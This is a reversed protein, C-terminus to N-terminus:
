QFIPLQAIANAVSANAKQLTELRIFSDSTTALSPYGIDSIQSMRGLGMNTGWALICAILTRHDVKRGAYRHLVHTFEAMFQCHRNVFHFVAQIDVQALSEFFSDNMGENVRSYLLRWRGRQKIEIHENEGSVIRQNVHALRTELLSSLDSLHKEATQTLIPLGAKTILADKEQWQDDSLLDDEFSRFRVSNQCFIDGSQLDNRLRRYVLFEYRDVLLQKEDNLNKTYLYRSSKEPIFRCPLKGAKYQTLPKEKQLATKLFRLAM